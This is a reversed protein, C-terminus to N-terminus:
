RRPRILGDAELRELWPKLAQLDLDLRAAADEITLGRRVAELVRRGSQGYDDTFSMSLETMPNLADRGRLTLDYRRSEWGPPDDPLELDPVSELPTFRGTVGKLPASQHLYARGDCYYTFGGEGATIGTFSNPDGAAARRELALGLLSRMMADDTHHLQMAPRGAELSYRYIARLADSHEWVHGGKEFYAAGIRGRHFLAIGHEKEVEVALAATLSDERARNVLARLDVLGPPLPQAPGFMPLAKMVALVTGPYPTSLQPLDAASPAPEFHYEVGMESPDGPAGVEFSNKLKGGDILLLRTGASFRVALTGSCGLGRALELLGEQSYSGSGVLGNM